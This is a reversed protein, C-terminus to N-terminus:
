IRDLEHEADLLGKLDRNRICICFPHKRRAIDDLVERRSQSRRSGTQTKLLSREVPEPTSGHVNETDPARRHEGGSPPLFKQRGAISLM